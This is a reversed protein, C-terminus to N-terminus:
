QVATNGKLGFGAEWYGPDMSSPESNNFKKHIALLRKRAAIFIYPVEDHIISQLEMWYEKRKDDDLTVGIKAILEDTYDNGFSPYNSGRNASETAWLQTPDQPAYEGVWAGYYIEFNHAKLNELCITWEQSIVEMEIGVKRCEEALLLAVNKRAENGANYIFRLKFQQLEGDVEYDRLGDGDIDKVGAEDFLAKAKEPNFDYPTLNHNYFDRVPMVPGVTREGYGHQMEAIIYDVDLLHALGKRVRKDSLHPVKTNIGLYSYILSPVAYGEFNKRFANSEQLDIFNKPKSVNMVDLDGRKLSSIAAPDDNIIQYVVEDMSANFYHSTGSLASGWWNDKKRVVIRQGTKWEEFAYAGSGVIYGKERQWKESNFERAFAIIKPDNELSADTNLQAVTFDKMLGEPDYVYEPVIYIEAGTGYIARVYKDCIFTVKKPHAEDTIVDKIFELYPKKPQDDVRPNKAVKMTFAVDSGLVPEGNDWVAEKRITYSIHVIGGEKEEVLPFSDALVPTLDLTKFDVNLLKQFINAMIATSSAGQNNIPNLMDPDSMKHVVVRKENSNASQKDPGDGSNGGGCATLMLFVAGLATGSTFLRTIKAFPNCTNNM